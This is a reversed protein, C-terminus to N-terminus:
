IVNRHVSLFQRCGESLTAEIGGVIDSGGIDGVILAGTPALLCFTLWFWLLCLYGERFAM